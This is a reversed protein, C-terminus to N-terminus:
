YKTTSKVPIEVIKGFQFVPIRGSGLVTNGDTIRCKVNDPVRYTMMVPRKERSDRVPLVRDTASNEPMLELVIPRGSLDNDPLLGGAASFRCLIVTTKGSQPVVDFSKEIRQTFQKGTFLAIYENELREIEAIAAPLGAGFVNEGAEGSVLDFRRKRLTFIKSAADAAMSELSLEAANIKDIPLKMFATDDASLNEPASMIRVPKIKLEPLSVPVPAYYTASPDAEERYSLSAGTVAYSEKDSLPAIVGLYQQAFRAYPGKKIVEREVVIHATIMTQPLNYGAVADSSITSVIQARVGSSLILCLM